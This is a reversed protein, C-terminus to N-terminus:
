LLQDASFRHEFHHALTEPSEYSFNLILPLDGFPVFLAPLTGPARQLCRQKSGRDSEPCPQNVGLIIQKLTHDTVNETKAGCDGRNRIDNSSILAARSTRCFPCVSRNLSLPSLRSVSVGQRFRRRDPSLRRTSRRLHA